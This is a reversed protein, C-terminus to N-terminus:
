IKQELEGLRERALKERRQFEQAALKSTYAIHAGVALGASSMLVLLAGSGGLLADAIQYVVPAYITTAITFLGLAYFTHMEKAARANREANYSVAETSDMHWIKEDFKKQERPDYVDPKTLIEGLKMKSAGKEKRGM